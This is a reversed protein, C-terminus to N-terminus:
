IEDSDSDRRRRQRRILALEARAVDLGDLRVEARSPAPPPVVSSPAPSAEPQNAACFDVLGARFQDCSRYRAEADRALARRLFRVTPESLALDQVTAIPDYTHDIKKGIIEQSTRGPFPGRGTLLEFAVVGLAYLDTWPGPPQSRIQEPAMYQPTGMAKSTLTRAESFRALGFDVIRILLPNGAVSQLMLNEPKIDRHVVGKSHAADLGNVTQELLAVVEDRSFGRGRTERARIEDRLTRADEVYEMVLYPRREHNGHELFQVVNPHQVVSLTEAEARFKRLVLDLVAADKQMNLLKLAAQKTLM